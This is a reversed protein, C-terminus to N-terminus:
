SRVLHLAGDSLLGEAAMILPLSFLPMTYPDRPETARGTQGIRLFFRAAALGGRKDSLDLTGQTV